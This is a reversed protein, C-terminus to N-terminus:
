IRFIGKSILYQLSTALTKDDIQGTAWWNAVNKIWDPVDTSTDNTITANILGQNIMFKVALVFEDKGLAKESWWLIRERVWHPVTRSETGYLSFKQINDNKKDVVYINGLSDTALGIPEEFQGALTGESGWSLLFNGYSDFKQIRHNNTDAVYFNDKADIAIATPNNFRGNETGSSGFFNIFDGIDSFKLIKNDSSSIYFDNKADFSIDNLSTFNAGDTLLPRIQDTYQRETNFIQITDRGSDVVFLYRGVDESLGVPIHFMGHEDGYGGWAYIFNGQKDFMQIRANGTDAVYVYKKGVFIGNSHIFQGNGSGASGWSVLLKGNSDFKKIQSNGSDVVYVDNDSDIAIGTPDNFSTSTGFYSVFKPISFQNANLLENEGVPSGKIDFSANRIIGDYDAYIEWHGTTYNKGIKYPLITDLTTMSLSKRPYEVGNPDIVWLNVSNAVIESTHIKLHIIDGPRYNFKDPFIGFEINPLTRPSAIVNFSGSNSVGAYQIVYSYTGISKTIGNLVLPTHVSFVQFQRTIVNGSPDTIKLTGESQTVRTVSLALNIVDGVQYTSKDTHSSVLMLESYKGLLFPVEKITNYYQIKLKYLGPPHYDALGIMHFNFIVSRQFARIDIQPIDSVINGKQDYFNLHFFEAQNAVPIYYSTTINVHMVNPEYYTDKDTFVNLVIPNVKFNVTQNVNDYRYNISWNGFYNDFANRVIQQTFTGDSKVQTLNGSITSNDPRHAIWSVPGGHFGQIKINVIIWDNPGFVSSKPVASITVADAQQYSIFIVAAIIVLLFITKRM